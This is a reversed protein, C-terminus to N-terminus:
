SIKRQNVLYLSGFLLLSVHNLKFIFDLFFHSILQCKKFRGQNGEASLRRDETQWHYGMDIKQDRNPLHDSSCDNLVSIMDRKNAM